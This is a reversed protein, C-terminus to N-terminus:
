SMLQKQFPNRKHIEQVNLSTICITWGRWRSTKRIQSWVRPSADRLSLSCPKMISSDSRTNASIWVERPNKMVIDHCPSVKWTVPGEPNSWQCQPLWIIAGTGTFYGQVIHAFLGSKEVVFLLIIMVFYTCLLFTEYKMPHIRTGCHVTQNVTLMTGYHLIGVTHTNNDRIQHNGARIAAAHRIWSTMKNDWWKLLILHTVLGGLVSQFHGIVVSTIKKREVRRKRTTHLLLQAHSPPLELANSILKCYPQVLGNIYVWGFGKWM